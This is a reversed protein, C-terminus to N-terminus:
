AGVGGHQQAGISRRLCQVSAQETSSHQATSELELELLRSAAKQYPHRKTPQVETSRCSIRTTPKSSKAQSRSSRRSAASGAARGV